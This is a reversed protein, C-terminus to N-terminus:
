TGKCIRQGRALINKKDNRNRIPDKSTRQNPGLREGNTGNKNIKGIFRSKSPGVNSTLILFYEADFDVHIPRQLRLPEVPLRPSHRTQPSVAAALMPLAAVQKWVDTSTLTM